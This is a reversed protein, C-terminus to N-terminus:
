HRIEFGGFRGEAPEWRVDVREVVAGAPGRELARLLQELVLREGEAVVAVSGDPLNRVYGRVGLAAAQRRVYFRYGVGQVQGHVHAQLRIV